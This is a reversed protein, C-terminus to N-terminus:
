RRSKSGPRRMCACGSGSGGTLSSIATTSRPSPSPPAHRLAEAVAVSQALAADAEAERGQMWLAPAAFSHLCVASSTQFVRVIERDTAEDCLALGSAVHSLTADLEGRFLRTFGLAHDSAVRLMPADSGAAMAAMSLATELAGSMNGRSFINCWLGFTAGFLAGSEGLAQALEISRRCCAEVERSAWGHMWTSIPALAIQARLETRTREEGEPLLAIQALAARLYIEAAGTAARELAQEGAALWHQAAARPLGGRECHRAVVEPESGPFAAHGALMAEAVTRHLDHRQRRLVSEYAAEQMLAHHFGVLRRRGGGRASESEAAIGSQCLSRLEARLDKRRPLVARLMAETFERGLVAGVQAVERAAGLRDLRAMLSEQLTVPVALADLADEERPLEAARDLLTKTLEELFLPVGAAREAITRAVRPPLPAGRGRGVADVLRVAEGPALAGLGVTGARGQLPWPPVFHPRHTVLLMAPLEAIRGLLAGLLDLTGEDAWHADELLVLLPGQRAMGEVRRVLADRTRRARAKPDEGEPRAASGELGLLAALPEADDPVLGPTAAVLAQLAAGRTADPVGRGLEALEELERVLPHLDRNALHALCYWRLVRSPRPEAGGELLAEVFARALRSKGIGAEGRLLIARGAGGGAERWAELLEALEADRGVLPSMGAAAVRAEFRSPAPGEGVVRHITVPEPFGKLTVNGRAEYEFLAGCLRRTAEAIITDGARGESQLRAALNPTEGVVRAGAIAGDEGASVVVLGTAIGVRAQLPHPAGTRAERLRRHIDLAARVAREADDEGAHPFGFYVVLGDGQAYAVHRAHEEVVAHCMAQYADVLEGLDEPDMASAIQTFGVLDVFLTTLHRREAAAPAARADRIARRFRKRQGLSLNLERLDQDTLEALSEADLQAASLPELLDTLGLRELATRLAAQAADTVSM